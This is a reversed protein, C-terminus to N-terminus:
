AGEPQGIRNTLSGVGAITLTIEDGPRLWHGTEMGSCGPLTGTAMLEGPLVTEGLSAYAVMDGLSHQMGASSGRGWVQGNVRVEAQLSEVRPLVEDATVVVASMANAFNKAKVPGFGSTMEPYQVDRASFDNVVVFGGIAREAEAPTANRLPQAIVVGLELEYDLARTYAPWPIEDGETFFNIHSGMYYIPKQYWIPKPRLAKPPKGFIAEYLRIFRMKQPMFRAVLGKAADVFHQEYLMFDRFSLPQFPMLPTPEFTDQLDLGAARTKEVLRRAEDQAAPGAQLFGILDHATTHLTPFPEAPGLRALAARLPVWRGNAPDEVAVSFGELPPKLRVRKLRM